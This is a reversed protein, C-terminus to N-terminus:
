KALFYNIWLKIIYATSGIVGVVMYVLVIWVMIKQTKTRASIRLEYPFEKVPVLNETGGDEDFKTLHNRTQNSFMGVIEKKREKSM